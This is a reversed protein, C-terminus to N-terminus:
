SQGNRDTATPTGESPTLRKMHLDRRRRWLAGGIYAVVAVNLVLAGVKIWTVHHSMSYIEAPIYIGGSGVAFWEAWGRGFWLGYAEALRVTAYALALVALMWLRVDSYREAAELFVRPYRNAANLHLTRVMQEAVTQLDDHVAGLLRFGVLLVLIGKVAEFVAV